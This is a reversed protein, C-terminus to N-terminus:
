SRYSRAECKKCWIELCSPESTYESYVAGREYRLDVDESGCKRCKVSFEFDTTDFVESFREQTFESM